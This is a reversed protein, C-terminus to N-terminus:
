DYVSRSDTQLKVRCGGKGQRILPLCSAAEGGQPYTTHAPGHNGKRCGEAEVKLWGALDCAPLQGTGNRRTQSGSNQTGTRHTNHTALSRGSHQFCFLRLARSAERHCAPLVGFPSDTFSLAWVKRSQVSEFYRTAHWRQCASNYLQCQIGTWGTYQYLDFTQTFATCDAATRAREASPLQPAEGRFAELANARWEGECPLPRPNSRRM